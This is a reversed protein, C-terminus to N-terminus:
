PTGSKYHEQAIENFLSVVEELLKGAEETSMVSTTATITGEDAHAPKSTVAERLKKMREWIPAPVDDERLHIINYAYANALRKQLSEESAAAYYVASFFKEWAYGLAM